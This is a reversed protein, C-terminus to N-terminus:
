LEDRVGRGAPQDGARRVPVGGYRAADLLAEEPEARRELGAFLPGHTPTAVFRGSGRTINLRGEHWVLRGRSITTVVKLSPHHPPARPLVHVDHQLSWGCCEM